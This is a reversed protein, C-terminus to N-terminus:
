FLFQNLGRLTREMLKVLDVLIVVFSVENEAVSTAKSKSKLYIEGELSQLPSDFKQEARMFGAPLSLIHAGFLLIKIKLWLSVKFGRM